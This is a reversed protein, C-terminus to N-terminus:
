FFIKGHLLVLIEKEKQSALKAGCTRTATESPLVKGM